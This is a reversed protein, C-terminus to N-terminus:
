TAPVLVSLCPGLYRRPITQPEPTTQLSKEKKYHLDIKPVCRSNGAYSNGYRSRERWRDESPPMRHVHAERGDVIDTPTLAPLNKLWFCTRKVEGHGFQWSQVSQLQEAYNVILAKAHRHMIPEEVCIREIPANWFFITVTRELM